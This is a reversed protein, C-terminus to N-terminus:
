GELEASDAKRPPLSIPATHLTRLRVEKWSIGEGLLAPMGMVVATTLEVAQLVIGYGLADATSVGFGGALVAVCAAQFVGINAPTAPLAATVNVAFLVAAAAGLGADGLGMAELLVFCSIWQLVWAGTQMTVAIAALRPKRFVSLGRRAEVMVTAIRERLVELRDSRLKPGRAFLIPAVLVCVVLLLPILSVLALAGFHGSFLPVSAFMVVGLGILAVINLATQAILTGFVAPLTVRPDGAHRAIIMARAPEGLRAPLTASMLVGICTARFVAGFRLVSEPLAADLTAKWAISRLVMSSGMVALGLLVLSPKSGLLASTVRSPGIREVAFGAAVTAALAVLVGFGQRLHKRRREKRRAPSDDLPPAKSPAVKPLLDAPTIGLSVLTRQKWGVPDPVDLAQEYIKMVQDAVHPWAFREASRWAAEGLAARLRPADGLDRLAHALAEADGPPVLVGDVGDEVVDRYGAINSAVVPTGAAFAETLVMGFSEGGLSPACLIDARALEEFKAQDDVKGLARVGTMDNMLPELTEHDVGVLTLESDLHERLAEFARLLVPLGKRGVAQGVFLIRFPGGSSRLMPRAPPVLTGNPIVSYRGGYYHSATWKAAESVAIRKQLQNVRRRGGLFRAIGNSLSSEAYAHFTGVKAVGKAGCTDWGVIPASPEHIHVVDFDNEALVRRLEVVGTPSVLLNSVAGNARFGVTGPLPILWDPNERQQPDAGGHMVRSRNGPKDVPAIVRVDHGNAILAGALGEVHRMVGGPYTWSYPSVLAIRVFAAYWRHRPGGIWQGDITRIM